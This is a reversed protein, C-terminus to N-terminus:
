IWTVRSGPMCPRHINKTELNAHLAYLCAPLYRDVCILCIYAIHTHTHMQMYSPTPITPVTPVVDDSGPVYLQDILDNGPRYLKLTRM